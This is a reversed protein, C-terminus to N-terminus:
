WGIKHVKGYVHLNCALLRFSNFFIKRAKM